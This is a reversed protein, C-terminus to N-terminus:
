RRKKKRAAAVPLEPTRVVGAPLVVLREDEPGSGTGTQAARVRAQWWSEAFGSWFPAPWARPPSLPVDIDTPIIYAIYIM